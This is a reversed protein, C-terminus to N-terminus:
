EGGEPLHRLFERGPEKTEHVRQSYLNPQVDQRSIDYHRGGDVNHSSEGRVFPLIRVRAVVVALDHLVIESQPVGEPEGNASEHLLPGVEVRLYRLLSKEKEVKRPPPTAGM